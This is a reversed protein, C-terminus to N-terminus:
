MAIQASVDGRFPQERRAFDAGLTKELAEIQRSVKPQSSGLSEGAKTFSRCEVVKLFAEIADLDRLKPERQKPEEAVVAFIVWAYTSHCAM